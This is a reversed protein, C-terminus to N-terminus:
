ACAEAAILGALDSPDFPELNALSITYRVAVVGNPPRFDPPLRPFTDDVEHVTADRLNFRMLEGSRRMEDDWDLRFLKILFDDVAASDARIAESISDILTALTLHGGQTEELQVSALFLRDGEAAWCTGPAVAAPRTRRTVRTSRAVAVRAQQNGARRAVLTSGITASRASYAALQLNYTKLVPFGVVM